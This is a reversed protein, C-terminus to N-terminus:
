PAHHHSVISPPGVKMQLYKGAETKFDRISWDEEDFMDADASHEEPNQLQQYQNHISILEAVTNNFTEYEKLPTM